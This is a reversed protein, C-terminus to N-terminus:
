RQFFTRSQTWEVVKKIIRKAATRNPTVHLESFKIEFQRHVPTPNKKLKIQQQIRESAAIPVSGKHHQLEERVGKLQPHLRHMCEFLEFMRLKIEFIRESELVGGTATNEAYMEVKDSNIKRNVVVWVVGRIEGSKLIAALVPQKYVRLHQVIVSGAELIGGILHKRDRRTRDGCDTGLNEHDRYLM